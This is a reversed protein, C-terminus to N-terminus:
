IADLTSRVAVVVPRRGFIRVVLDRIFQARVAETQRLLSHSDVKAYTLM